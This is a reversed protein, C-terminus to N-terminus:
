EILDWTIWFFNKTNLLKYNPFPRRSIRWLAIWSFLAASLFDFHLMMRARIGLSIRSLWISMKSCYCCLVNWLFVYFTWSNSKFLLLMYFLFGYWNFSCNIIVEYVEHALWYQLEPYFSKFYSLNLFIAQIQDLWRWRWHCNLNNAPLNVQPLLAFCQQTIDVFKLLKNVIGLLTKGKCCPSGLICTKM